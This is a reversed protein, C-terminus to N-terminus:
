SFLIIESIIDLTRAIFVQVVSNTISKVSLWFSPFLLNQDSLLKASGWANLLLAQVLSTSLVALTMLANLSM